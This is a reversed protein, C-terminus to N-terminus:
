VTQTGTTHPQTNGVNGTPITSPVYPAIPGYTGAKLAEWLAVGHPEPDWSTAHFTHTTNGLEQFQVLCDIGNGDESTYVPNTVSIVTFM